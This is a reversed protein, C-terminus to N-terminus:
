IKKIFFDSINCKLILFYRIRDLNREYKEDSISLALDKTRDYKRSYGPVKDFIIHLPKVHFLTKYM